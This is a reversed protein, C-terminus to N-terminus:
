INHRTRRHIGFLLFKECMVNLVHGRFTRPPPEAADASHAAFNEGHYRDRGYKEHWPKEDEDEGDCVWCFEHELVQCASKHPVHQAIHSTGFDVQRVKAKEIVSRKHLIGHDLQHRRNYKQRQHDRDGRLHGTRLKSRQVVPNKRVICRGQDHLAGFAGFRVTSGGGLCGIVGFIM